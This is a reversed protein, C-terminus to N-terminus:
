KQRNQEYNDLKENLRELFTQEGDDGSVLWDIRQAYIEAIRLAIYGKNFSSLINEPFNYYSEEEYDSYYEGNYHEKKKGNNLILSEITDAIGRIRYQDYDFHGGSM